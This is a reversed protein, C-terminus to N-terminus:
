AAPMLRSCFVAEVAKLLGHFMPDIRNKGVIVVADQSLLDHSEFHCQSNILGYDQAEWWGIAVISQDPYQNYPMLQSNQTIRKVIGERACLVLISGTPYRRLILPNMDLPPKCDYNTNCYHLSAM